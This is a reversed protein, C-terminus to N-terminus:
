GYGLLFRNRHFWDGDALQPRIRGDIQHSRGPREAKAPGLGVLQGPPILERAAHDPDAVGIPDGRGAQKFQEAHVALLPWRRYSSTWLVGRDGTLAPDSYPSSGIVRLDTRAFSPATALQGGVEQM